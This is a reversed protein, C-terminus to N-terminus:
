EGSTLERRPPPLQTQGSAAPKEPLAARLGVTLTAIRELDKPDAYQKRPQGHGVGAMGYKALLPELRGTNPDPLFNDRLIGRYRRCMNLATELDEMLIGRQRILEQATNVAIQHDRDRVARRAEDETILEEDYEEVIDAEDITIVKQDLM